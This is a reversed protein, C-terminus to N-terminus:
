RLIATIRPGQKDLSEITGGLETAFRLIREKALDAFANERGILRMFLKIRDGKSVMEQARRLKTQFDHESIKFSLKIEKVEGSKQKVRSKRARKEEEYKQKNYDLLRVVPPTAGGSVEVLDLGSETAIFFAQERSLVGLKQGDTDIILLEPATIAANM